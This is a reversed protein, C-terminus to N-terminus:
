KALLSNVVTTALWEHRAYAYPFASGQVIQAAVTLPMRDWGPVKKLANYFQTAAFDPRMLDKVPGWGTSTRQQFLGVSDFDSGTGEHPYQKSEPLVESARNLLTSEQMAVAVAVILGRRPVGQSLGTQVIANANNMQVQSLGAVPAPVKPPAPKAPEPQKQEGPPAAPAPQQAPTPSGGPVALKSQPMEITHGRDSSRSAARDAQSRQVESQLASRDIASVGPADTGTAAFGAAGLCCIIGTAVGIRAPSRRDLLEKVRAPSSRLEDLKGQALVRLDGIKNQTSARFDGIQSWLRAPSRRRGQPQEASPTDASRDHPNAAVSEHEPTHDDRM